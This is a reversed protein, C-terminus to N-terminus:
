SDMLRKLASTAMVQNVRGMERALLVMPGVVRLRLLLRMFRAQRIGYRQECGSM